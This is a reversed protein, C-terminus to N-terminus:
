RLRREVKINNDKEEKKQWLNFALVIIIFEICVGIFEPVLNNILFGPEGKFYAVLLLAILVFSTVGVFIKERM